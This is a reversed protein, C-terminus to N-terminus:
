EPKTGSNYAMLGLFTEELGAEFGVEVMRDRLWRQGKYARMSEPIYIYTKPHGHLVTGLVAGSGTLWTRYGWDVFASPPRAFDLNWFTGGPVLVRHVERLVAVWDPFGRGAYTCTVKDFSADEFPLSGADALVFRVHDMGPPRKVEALRMMDANIDTGVVEGETAIGGVMFSTDGTGCAIDLVRDGPQIAAYEVMRRKWRTHWGLSMIDNGLDYKDAVRTFIWDVLPQKDVKHELAERLGSPMESAPRPENM